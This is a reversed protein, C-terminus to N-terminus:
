RGGTAKFEVRALMRLQYVTFGILLFGLMWAMATAPGFELFVFAKFFINLPAVETDAQGATMALIVDSSHMWSGIFAGVFNIIILPRLTPIVVSLIKDLFTAGDIEAAEYFDDPIGKLAALYILCGPGMGAWVGPIICAIMSYRPDRLWQTPEPLTKWLGSFFGSLSVHGPFLIPWAISVLTVCFVTGILLSGVAGAWQDHFVFRRALVVCFWLVLGGVLLFGIAPVGAVLANLTGQASPDYFQKWLLLTVLGALVAPLYFILRYAIKGRPVEQLLIALIISPVFGFVLALFSFRMSNWISLWWLDDFLMDGFNKLGVWTSNGIIRYDQFGMVSGSALPYYKWLLISAVAPLLLLGVIIARHRTTVKTESAAAVEGFTKFVRYFVFGFGLAVLVLFGAAVRDRLTREEPSIKGIMLDNAKNEARALIAEIQLLREAPDSSFGNRMAVQMAEDIPRQLMRYALNSNKGYPEPRGSAKAEAFVENWGKPSLRVIEPYGFRELHAPSVFRGVGGEVLIRTQLNLAAESDLYAIYEWAADRVAPERIQSFIGLMRSNIEAARIGGPGKPVPALGVADPDLKSLFNEDMYVFNMGIEGREWKTNTIQNDAVAYGRALNGDPATWPEMLLETLFAIGQAAERSGFACRWENTELNLEMVEGGASWIFTLCEWGLVSSMGLGVHGRRPDTLKVAAAKLDAWTWDATPYPIGASDFLEKRYALVRGVFGGTPMAWVHEQGNPGKRFIVPWVKPHVRQEIMERTMGRFYQDDEIDLPYLFGNRIYTDSKRFNVYLLDPANGGAIAMLDSEVGEVNLGAFAELRVAVKSWDHRGYREPDAEYKKRYKAEFIKPFDQQFQRIVALEARTNVATDAANPLSPAVVTILTTDDVRRVTGGASADHGTLCFLLATVSARMIPGWVGSTSTTRSNM